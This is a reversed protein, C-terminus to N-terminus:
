SYCAPGRFYAGTLGMPNSQVKSSPMPSADETSPSANGLCMRTEVLLPHMHASQVIAAAVDAKESLEMHFTRGAVDSWPPLEDFQTTRPTGRQPTKTYFLGRETQAQVDLFRPHRIQTESLTGEKPRRTRPM